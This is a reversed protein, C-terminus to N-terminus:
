DLRLEQRLLTDLEDSLRIATVLQQETLTLFHESSLVGKTAPHAPRDDGGLGTLSALATLPTSLSWRVLAASARRVESSAVPYAKSASSTVEQQAERLRTDWREALLGLRELRLPPRKMAQVTHNYAVILRQFDNVTAVLGVYRDERRKTREDELTQQREREHRADEREYQKKDRHLQVAQGLVAGLLAGAGGSLAVVVLTGTSAADAVGAAQLIRGCSM